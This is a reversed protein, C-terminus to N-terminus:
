LFLGTIKHSYACAIPLHSITKSISKSEYKCKDFKFNFNTNLKFDVDIDFNM